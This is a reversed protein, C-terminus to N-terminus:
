KEATVFIPAYGDQRHAEMEQKTIDRLQASAVPPKFKTASEVIDNTIIPAGDELGQAIREARILEKALKDQNLKRPMEVEDSIAVFAAWARGNRDGPEEGYAAYLNALVQADDVDAAAERLTITMKKGEDWSYCTVNKADAIEASCMRKFHDKLEKDRADADKKAVQIEAATRVLADVSEKNRLDMASMGAIAVMQKEVKALKNDTM